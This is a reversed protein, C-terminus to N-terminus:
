EAGEAGAEVISLHAERVGAAKAAKEFDLKHALPPRGKRSGNTAQPPTKRRTTGPTKASQTRPM